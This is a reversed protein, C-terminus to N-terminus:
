PKRWGLEERWMPYLLRNNSSRDSQRVMCPKPSERERARGFRGGGKDTAGEDNPSGFARLSAHSAMLLSLLPPVDHGTPATLLM